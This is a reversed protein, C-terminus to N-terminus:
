TININLSSLMKETVRIVPEITWEGNIKVKKIENLHTIFNRISYQKIKGSKKLLTYIIYYWQLAIHNIFMWGQLAEENQMYTRDAHIVNKMGDFM